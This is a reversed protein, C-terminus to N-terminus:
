NLPANRIMEKTSSQLKPPQFWQLELHIPQTIVVVGYSCFTQNLFYFCWLGLSCDIHTFTPCDLILGPCHLCAYCQTVNPTCLTESGVALAPSLLQMGTSCSRRTANWTQSPLWSEKTRMFSQVSSEQQVDQPNTYWLLDHVRVLHCHNPFFFLHTQMTQFRQTSTSICNLQM